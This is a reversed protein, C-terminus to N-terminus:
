AADYLRLTAVIIYAVCVLSAVLLITLVAQNFVAPAQSPVNDLMMRWVDLVPMERREGDANRTEVELVSVVIGLAIAVLGTLLATVVAPSAIPARSGPQESADERRDRSPM